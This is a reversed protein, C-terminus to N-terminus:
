RGIEFALLVNGPMQGFSGYGSNVFLMGNSIVPASGDLAGGRGKLGNIGDFDKVTDFDWLIEGNSSAYARIHGDLTGAFVIGPIVTPAASNGLNCGKRTTDCPPPAKMWNVKGSAPDLAYLGPSAKISSDRKDIAWINDSNAAYVQQGDTAM